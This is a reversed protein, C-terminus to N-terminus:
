AGSTRRGARTELDELVGPLDGFRAIEAHPKAEALARPDGYGYTAAVTWARAGRGALVDVPSDGVVVCDEPRVGLVQASHRPLDPAPKPREVEDGGVVATFHSLLGALELMRRAENKRRTTMTGVRRGSLRPFTDQVGPYLRIGQEMIEMFHAYYRDAFGDATGGQIGRLVELQHQVPRGIFPRLEEKTFARSDGIEVMAANMAHVIADLTQVLTGDLDFLLALSM